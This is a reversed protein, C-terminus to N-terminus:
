EYWTVKTPPSDLEVSLVPICKYVVYMYDESNSKAKKQAIELATNYSDIGKRHNPNEPFFTQGDSKRVSVVLYKETPKNM